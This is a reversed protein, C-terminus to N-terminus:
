MKGAESAAKQEEAKLMEAKKAAAAKMRDTMTIVGVPCKSVCAGCQICKEYDVHALNREVHVSDFKCQKECLGCGICGATCVSKVQAGRDHSSCRVAVQNKVPKLEILGRPCAKVCLGCAVCKKEDVVAVGNVVRIADAPCVQTCSGFGLCGYDCSTVNVGAFVAARCDIIGIYNGQSRTVDCTGSCRVFAANKEATEAAVGMIAAVKEAVPGSGVPCGGVPAEGKSIAAAMADCGAFGCAGCNNGPLVERVAAEKEDVEVHFKKSTFVLGIGVIIGVVTIVLTTLIIGQM